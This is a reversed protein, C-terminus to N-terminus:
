VWPQDLQRESLPTSILSCFSARTRLSLSAATLVGHSVL